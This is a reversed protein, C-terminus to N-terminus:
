TLGYIESFINESSQNASLIYNPRLKSGQETAATLNAQYPDHSLSLSNQSDFRRQAVEM